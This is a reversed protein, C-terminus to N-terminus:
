GVDSAIPLQVVARTGEGPHSDLAIKGGLNEVIERAIALGVGTGGQSARTTFYLDFARASIEAPMGCGRDIVEVRLDAGDRTAYIWVVGDPDSAALANALLNTLVRQIKEPHTVGPLAPALSLEIRRSGDDVARIARAVVDGFAIRGSAGLSSRFDAGLERLGRLLQQTVEEIKGVEHRVHAEDGVNASIRAARRELVRLPRSLDHTIGSVLQEIAGTREAATRADAARAHHIALATTAAVARAFRLDESGLALRRRPRGILILGLCIADARVEVVLEVGAERLHQADGTTPADGRALHLEGAGELAYQASRAFAVRFAPSERGAYAPRWGGTEDQLFLAVGTTDIGAELMRGALRAATDESPARSLLQSQAEIFRAAGGPAGFLLAAVRPLIRARIAGWVGSGIIAGAAWVVPGQLGLLEGVAWIALAGVGGVCAVGVIRELGLRAKQPFDFLDYRVIALGLPLIFAVVGVFLPLMHGTPAGAAWGSWIAAVAVAIGVSGGLLLGARARALAGDHARYAFFCRWWLLIAATSVLVLVFRQGVLWFTPDLYLARIEVAVLVAAIVYPIWLVSRTARAVEVERPFTLALHGLAAGILPGSPISAWYLVDSEAACVDAIIESAVAAALFLLAPAAAASSTWFVRLAFGLVLAACAIAAALRELRQPLAETAVPVDVDLREGDREVDLRVPGEASEIAGLFASRDVAFVIAGSSELSVIRDLPDLPCRSDSSAILPVVGNPVTRCVLAQRPDRTFTHQAALAALLVVPLLAVFSARFRVKRDPAQESALVEEDRADSGGDWLHVVAPLLLLDSALAGGIAVGSLFGFSSISQWSSLTLVFFGATLAVSTAIVAQGVHLVAGDIAPGPRDGRERRRSFEGLLHITDDVGIGIVIAAVMATGMDLDIGAYGMVGLTAVVPLITPFMGVLGWAAAATVHLGRSWLFLVVILWVVLSSGGFSSLQTRQIEAVLDRYVVFTGTLSATWDKGLHREIAARVAAIVADRESSPMKEAEVSLRMSRFDLDVWPELTDPDFISLLSTIGSAEDPTDPLRMFRSDGEHILRNTWRMADLASHVRDLGPIDSLARTLDEVRRLVAPDEFRAGAPLELEIELTDPLRLNSELFRFAKVVPSEEGYLKHEDVDVRLRSMGYLCVILLLSAGVVIARSRSRGARVVARLLAGWGEAMQVSRIRDAPLWVLLIPLITFTLVLAATIGAAAVIGFHYFSELGSLTFSLLGAITTATTVLCPAGTEEASRLLLAAREERTSGGASARHQAYRSLVHIADALGIVLILPPITQTIANQPWDLWAMTGSAWLSSLGVTALAALVAQWSRFIVAVVLAVLGIMVPLLRQSDQALSRDTLAFQATQGVIHFEFGASEFPALAAELAELVSETDGSESSVLQVVIAGVRADKSILQGTWLDNEPALKRIRERQTPDTAVVAELADKSGITLATTAPSYAARVGPLDRLESVVQEAMAVAADDFVDNCATTDLCSWVAAMPLGGGFREIFRDLRVVTPHDAGIYARYGTETRLRLAQIGLLASLALIIGTVLLPRALALRTLRQM